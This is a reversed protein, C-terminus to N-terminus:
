LLPKVFGLFAKTGRAGVEKGFNDADIQPFSGVDRYNEYFDPHDPEVAEKGDILEYSASYRFPWIDVLPILDSLKALIANPMSLGLPRKKRAVVWSNSASIDKAIYNRLMNAFHEDEIFLGAETNMNESRPDLNYSGVFSVRDDVVLSKGHLCLYPEGAKGNEGQLWRVLNHQHVSAKLRDLEPMFEEMDGPVPMFEYIRFKLMQLYTQKQKYSMAYVHWSDTAALSNTSIRIDIDPHERRLKNFLSIGPSTLILYPTQIVVKEEASSVIDALERTIRSERGLWLLIRDRKHPRDAIFYAKDVHILQNVFREEVLNPNSLDKNVTDYLSNLLFDSRTMLAGPSEGNVVSNKVDKLDSLSVSFESTWYDEFSDAIPKVVPGVVLIDRDKYNMGMAHDYYANQYNRGGTIAVLDDVIFTKNHMRHNLRNFKFVLAYLKEFFFSKAKPQNFVNSVPNFLKIQFRPHVSALLTVFKIHQESSLHDILFRVTVGRRAAEILEYMFLRGVEDNAWILTQIDISKKATRILHIRSLLADHGIELLTVSNVDHETEALTRAHNLLASGNHSLQYVVPVADHNSSSPKTSCGALIFLLCFIVVNLVLCSRSAYSHFM